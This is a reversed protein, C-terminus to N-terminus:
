NQSVEFDDGRMAEITRQKNCFEAYIRSLSASSIQNFSDTGAARCAVAKVYDVTPVKGRLEFYRFIAKIVGKRKRYLEDTVPKSERRKKFLEDLSAILGRAEIFTLESTHSTRGNTYDLVIESIADKNSIGIRGFLWYLKRNQAVTRPNKTTNEM